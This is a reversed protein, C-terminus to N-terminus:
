GALGLSKCVTIPDRSVHCWVGTQCRVWQGLSPHQLFDPQQLTEGSARNRDPGFLAGARSAPQTCAGQAKGGGGGAKEDPHGGAGPRMAQKQSWQVRTAASSYKSHM